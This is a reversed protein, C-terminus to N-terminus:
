ADGAATSSAYWEVDSRTGCSRVSADTGAAPTSANRGGPRSADARARPSADAGAARSADGGPAPFADAPSAPRSQLRSPQARQEFVRWARSIGGSGPFVDAFSDGPRAGLLAFLWFAFAAPKAGIVRGPDTTRASVGHLLADPPAGLDSRGGAYIVPEWSSRPVRAQRHARAHRFWGAVRVGEIGAARVLALVDPLSSASLSLAWGDFTRAQELLAAHDVEGGFDPHGRYLHAKGMYPPDFYALSIPQDARESAVCWSGFRHRAKRCRVSCCVADRRLGLGELPRNCWACHLLPTAM